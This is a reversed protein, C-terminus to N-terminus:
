TMTRLFSFFHLTLKGLAAAEAEKALDKEQLAANAVEIADRLRSELEIERNRLEKVERSTIQSSKQLEIYRQEVSALKQAAHSSSFFFSLFRFVAETQQL